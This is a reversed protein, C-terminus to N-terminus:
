RRNKHSPPSLSFFFFFTHSKESPEEKTEMIKEGRTVQFTTQGWSRHQCFCELKVRASDRRSSWITVRTGRQWWVAKQSSRSSSSSGRENLRRNRTCCVHVKHHYCCSRGGSIWGRHGSNLWRSRVDLCWGNFVDASILVTAPLNTERQPSQSNCNHIRWVCVSVFKCM